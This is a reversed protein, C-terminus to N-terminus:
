ADITQLVTFAQYSIKLVSTMTILSLDMGGITKMGFHKTMYTVIIYYSKKDRDNLYTWDFNLLALRLENTKTKIHEGFWNYAFIEAFMPLMHPAFRWNADKSMLLLILCTCFAANCLPIFALVKYMSGVKRLYRSLSDHVEYFKRLSENLRCSYSAGTYGAKKNVDLIKKLSDYACCLFYILIVFWMDLIITSSIEFLFFSHLIWAFEYFPSTVPMLINTSRSLLTRNGNIYNWLTSLEYISCPIMVMLFLTLVINKGTKLVSKLDTSPDARVIDILTTKAMLYLDRFIFRNNIFILMKIPFMVIMILTYCAEGRLEVDGTTQLCHLTGIFVYVFLLLILIQHVFYKRWTWKPDLVQQGFLRQYLLASFFMDDVENSRGVTRTYKILIDKFHAMKM